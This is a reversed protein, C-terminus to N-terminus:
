TARPWVGAPLRTPKSSIRYWFLLLRAPAPHTNACGAPEEAGGGADGVTDTQGLDCASLRQRTSRHACEWFACRPRRPHLGHDTTLRQTWHILISAFIAVGEGASRWSSSVSM